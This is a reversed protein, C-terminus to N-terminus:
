AIWSKVTRPTPLSPLTWRRFVPPLGTVAGKVEIHVNRVASRRTRIAALLNSMFCGAIAALFLEGGMPGMDSGGKSSPRDITVRHEGIVAEAASPSMQRLQIKLEASM